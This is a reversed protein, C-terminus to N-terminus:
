EYKLEASPMPFLFGRALSLLNGIDRANPCNGVRTRTSRSLPLCLFLLGIRLRRCAESTVCMRVMESTPLPFEATSFPESVVQDVV